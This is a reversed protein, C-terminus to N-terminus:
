RSLHGAPHGAPPDELTATVEAVLEEVLAVGTDYGANGESLVAVLYQRHPGDVYGVSNVAWRGGDSERPTWGNKLGVTDRPGAAASVGWAQEPAVSEMLGRVLARQDATLPGEETYLARLLRVQDAPTTVVAGWVGHPHPETGTLGLRSVGESFGPNYGIRAYLGNTVENDSYRIMDEALGREAETLDRGENGARLVLLTLIMLKSVSATPFGEQAGHSFTAGTRLDQVAIGARAGSDGIIGEVRAALGDYQGATLVPGGVAPATVPAFPVPALASETLMARVLAPDAGPLAVSSAQPSVVLLLVLAAVLLARLGRPARPLGASPCRPM